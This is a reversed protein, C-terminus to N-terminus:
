VGIEAWVKDIEDKLPAYAKSVYLLAHFGHNQNIWAGILRLKELNKPQLLQSPDDQCLERIRLSISNLFEIEEDPITRDVYPKFNRLLREIFDPMQFSGLKRYEEAVGLAHILEYIVVFEETLGTEIYNSLIQDISIKEPEKWEVPAFNEKKIRISKMCEELNMGNRICESDAMLVRHRDGFEYFEQVLGILGNYKPLNVLGTIFVFDGVQVASLLGFLSVLVALSFSFIM